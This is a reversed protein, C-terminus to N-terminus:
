REHTGLVTLVTAGSARRSKYRSCSPLRRARLLPPLPPPHPHPPCKSLGFLQSISGIIGIKVALLGGLLAIAIPWQQYLLQLDMSSGTTTFFLGLLLSRFPRIDAEVQRRLSINSTMDYFIDSRFCIETVISVSYLCICILHLILNFYMVCIKCRTQLNTFPANRPHAIHTRKM